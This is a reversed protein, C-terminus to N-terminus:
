FFHLKSVVNEGNFSLLAQQYVLLVATSVANFGHPERLISMASWILVYCIKASRKVASLIKTLYVFRGDLFGDRILIIILVMYALDFNIAIM